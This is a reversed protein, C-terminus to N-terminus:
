DFARSQRGDLFIKNAPRNPRARRTGVRMSRIAQDLDGRGVSLKGGAAREQSSQPLPPLVPHPQTPTVPSMAEPVLLGIKPTSAALKEQVAHVELACKQISTLLPPLLIM